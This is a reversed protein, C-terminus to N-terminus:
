ELFQSPIVYVKCSNADSHRLTTDVSSGKEEIVEHIKRALVGTNFRGQVKGRLTVPFHNKKSIEDVM